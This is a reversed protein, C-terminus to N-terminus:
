ENIGSVKEENIMKKLVSACRSSTTSRFEGIDVEFNESMFINAAEEEAMDEIVRTPLDEMMQMQLSDWQGEDVLKHANKKIRANTVYQYSLKEAGSAEHSTPGGFTKKNKEKFDARVYKAFTQTDYNKFTLGEAQVNGFESEPVTTVYDDWDDASVVDIVPAQALNLTDFCLSWQEHNLWRSDKECWVDFGTFPPAEEWDYELTHPTLAEGYFVLGNGFKAELGRMRSPEVTERVHDIVRKFQKNEDKQNKFVVNRSGFVIERDDTHYQEDLNRELTFRFNAGDIKEQVVIDGKAFVGDTEDEEPYRISPYKRMSM